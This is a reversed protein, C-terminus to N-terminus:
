EGSHTVAKQLGEIGSTTLAAAWSKGVASASGGEGFGSADALLVM